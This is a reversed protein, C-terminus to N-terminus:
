RAPGGKLGLARAGEGAAAALGRVQEERLDCRLSVRIREAGMAVTPYRIARALYGRAELIAAMELAAGAGPVMIPVIHTRSEGTDLGARELEERLLGGLAHLSERRHPESEVIALAASAAACAAPPLATSYMMARAASTLLSILARSGAIFGGMSGLAKGMTALYVDVGAEAGAAQAAGGGGEGLVGFGHADDLMLLAGHRRAVAALEVLPAVDGDMSFVGESIVLAGGDRGGGRESLLEDLHSPDCHRYKVTEARSLRCGDVISAHNLEDSYIARMGSSLVPISGVNAHYGSGFLLCADRGTFRALDSELQMHYKSTGSLLRSGTSGVGCEEVARAAAAKVRPDAALALYDNSCLVVPSGAGAERGAGRCYAGSPLERRLGLGSLESLAREWLDDGRRAPGGGGAGSGGGKV